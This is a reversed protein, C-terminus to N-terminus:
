SAALQLGEVTNTIDALQTKLTTAVQDLQTLHRSAQENIQKQLRDVKRATRSAADLDDSGQEATTFSCPVASRLCRRCPQRAQHEPAPGSCKQKRSRCQFCAVGSRSTLSGVVRCYSSSVSYQVTGKSIRHIRAPPLGGPSRIDANAPLEDNLEARLRHMDTDMDM